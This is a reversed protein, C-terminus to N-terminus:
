RKSKKHNKKMSGEPNDYSQEIVKREHKLREVKQKLVTKGDSSKEKGELEKRRKHLEDVKAQKQAKGHMMRGYLHAAKRNMMSKALAHAEEEEAKRKKEKKQRHTETEEEEDSPEGECESESDDGSEKATSAEDSEGVTEGPKANIAKRTPEIPTEMVVDELVEGNKLREIEEAYAPKYGEEEDDVWPSLHPPLAVGVAYRQIPLLFMFNACDVIWQPQIYERSKPLTSQYNSPLRPRDVIHHTISPDSMAIPSHQGEDAEWGVRGGYALCILELYGRPIERSLFFTLGSFLRKRQHGHEDLERAVVGGGAGSLREEEEAMTELAAKLPGAVDVSEDDEDDDGEEADDESDLTKLAASVAEIRKQKSEVSDRSKANSIPPKSPVLNQQEVMESVVSGIAGKSSELARRLAKLNAGLIASTSGVAETGLESATFPYRLGLDNYLKFLVFNLLTEFFEFFTMMVRYDVDQPLWQTFSHPVIWRIAVGHIMAELYVGKVSIFSKTITCTTACYAGWSAVLTKAKNTVSAKIDGEAPLAAFLYSLTLADDLDSLADVFRPYREKVLHHLTYTPM